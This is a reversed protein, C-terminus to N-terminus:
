ELDYIRLVVGQVIDEARIGLKFAAGAAALVNSANHRGILASPVLVSSRGFRIELESGSLLTSRIEATVDARPSSLGYRVVPARCDAVIDAAPIENLHLPTGAM